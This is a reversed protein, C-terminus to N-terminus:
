RRSTRASTREVVDEVGGLEELQDEVGQVSERREWWRSRCLEFANTRLAKGRADPEQKLAWEVFTKVHTNYFARVSEFPRPHPLWPRPDKASEDEDEVEEDVDFDEEIEVPSGDPMEADDDEGSEDEEDEDEDSSDGGDKENLGLDEWFVKVGDLKGLDVSYFSDFSFEHDGDEWTGCYVFLTDGSVCVAANFRPHPLSNMMTYQTAHTQEEEGDSDADDGNDGTAVMESMDINLRQLIQSLNQELEGDNARSTSHKVHTLQPKRRGARIRLSAWRNTETQYSYISNYFISKLSEETEETDYVGGFMIGRGTGIRHPVLQCGTRPSPAFAGKKRREWRIDKLDPKMHLFWSDQLVKGKQQGKSVKVKTYGGYLLAGEATPLLSHGSRAGPVALTPLIEVKHWKWDSIDFAWLDDLYSTSMSLDRFGGYLIIYNKWACMRHGSRPQPTLVKGRGEIKTWEKSEGDLVWTDSYHHFSTQKPSSFEGGHMVMVGSPHACMAHSSRPLPANSSKVSRWVDTHTNYVFLDNYFQVTGEKTLVEGGFLVIEKRNAPNPVLTSNQRKSPRKCADIAVKDHKAQQKALEALVEDIDVNDEDEVGVKANQKQTKNDSKKQNKLAKELGRQRKAAKAVKDNKKAM